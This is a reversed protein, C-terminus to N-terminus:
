DVNEKTLHPIMTRENWRKAVKEGGVTDELPIEIVPGRYYVGKTRVGCETCQAVIYGGNTYSGSFMIEAKGGCFPCEKLEM